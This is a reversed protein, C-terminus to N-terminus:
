AGDGSSIAALSDCGAALTPAPQAPLFDGKGTTPVAARDAPPTGAIQNTTM